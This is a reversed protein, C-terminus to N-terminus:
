QHTHNLNAAALSDKPARTQSGCCISAFRISVTPDFQNAEPREPLWHIQGGTSDCGKYLRGKVKPTGSVLELDM